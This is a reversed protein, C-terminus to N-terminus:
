SELLKFGVGHINTIQVRDDGKVYKRLRSIFVDLSRGHFYDNKGWIQELIEERSVIEGKNKALLCLIEAERHTMKQLDDGISLTLQDFNFLYRGIQFTKRNANPIINRRRLFIDIKYNLEEISFPKSLYDDAGIEFGHLRDEKLSKATLFLIPINVDKKRLAEALTFGDIDPLMVDFIALDFDEQGISDMAERGNTYHCFQYNNEKLSDMTLFALTEDDEVFLIKHNTKM